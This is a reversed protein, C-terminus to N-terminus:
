FKRLKRASEPLEPQHYMFYCTSNVSFTSVAYSLAICLTSVVTLLAEKSCVLKTKDM